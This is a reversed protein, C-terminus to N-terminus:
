RENESILNIHRITVNAPKYNIKSPTRWAKQIHRKMCKMIKLSNKVMTEELIEEAGDERKEKNLENTKYQGVDRLNRNEKGSKKEKHKSWKYQCIKLNVSAKRLQTFDPSSGM